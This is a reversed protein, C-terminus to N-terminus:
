KYLDERKFYFYEVKKEDKYKSVRDEDLKDGAHLIKVYRGSSLQVFLDFLVPQSTYFESIKVRTFKSDELAVEEEPGLEETGPYYLMTAKFHQAPAVHPVFTEGETWRGAPNGATSFFEAAERMEPPLDAPLEQAIAAGAAFGIVGLIFVRLM